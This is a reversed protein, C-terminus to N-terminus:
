ALQLEIVRPAEEIRAGERFLIIVAHGGVDRAELTHDDFRMRCEDAATDIQKELCQITVAGHARRGNLELDRHAQLGHM